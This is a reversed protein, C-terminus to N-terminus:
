RPLGLYQEALSQAAEPSANPYTLTKRVGGKNTMAYSNEKNFKSRGVTVIRPNGSAPSKYKRTYNGASSEYWESDVAARAATHKKGKKAPGYNGSKSKGSSKSPEASKSQAGSKLEGDNAAASAPKAKHLLDSLTPQKTKKPINVSFDIPKLPQRPAPRKLTLEGSDQSFSLTTQLPKQSSSQSGASSPGTLDIVSKGAAHANPLLCCAFLLSSIKYM